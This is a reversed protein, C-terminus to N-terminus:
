GLLCWWWLWCWKSGGGRVAGAAAAAVCRGCVSRGQMAVVVVALVAVLMAKAVWPVAGRCSVWGRSSGRGWGVLQKASLKHYHQHPSM